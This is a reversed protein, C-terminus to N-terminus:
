RRVVRRWGMVIVALGAVFGALYASSVAVLMPMTDDIAAIGEEGYIAVLVEHGFLAAAVAVALGVGIAIVIVAAVKALMPGSM